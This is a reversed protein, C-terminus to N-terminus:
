TRFTWKKNIFFNWFTAMATAGILGFIDRWGFQATTVFFVAQNILMGGVSVILFKLAERAVNKNSSRFTWKRNLVYGSSASIVFSLAKAGQRAAQLDLAGFQWVLLFKFLYFFAWDVLTNFSGVIAFKIFQRYAKKRPVLDSITKYAV